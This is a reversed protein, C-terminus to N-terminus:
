GDTLQKIAQKAADELETNGQQRAKVEFGQLASLADSARLTALGDVAAAQIFPDPESVFRSYFDILKTKEREAYRATRVALLRYIPNSAKALALLESGYPLTKPKESDDGTSEMFPSEALGDTIANFLIYDAATPPLTKAREQALSTVLDPRVKALERAGAALVQQEPLKEANVGMFGAKATKADPNDLELGPVSANGHGLMKLFSEPLRQGGAQADPTGRVADSMALLMPVVQSANDSRLTTKFNSWLVEQRQLVALVQDKPVGMAKAAQELDRGSPALAPAKAVIPEAPPSTPEPAPTVASESVVPPQPKEPENAQKTPQKSCGTILGALLVAYLPHAKM